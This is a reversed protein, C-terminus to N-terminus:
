GRRVGHEQWGRLPAAGTRRHAPRAVQHPCAATIVIIDCFECDFPCGRSFQVAMTCLPPSRHPGGPCPCMRSPRGTRPRTAPRSPEGSSTPWWGPSSNRPRALVFIRIDPFAEHGTTFLPRRRHGAGLKRCRSVIEKVSQKHVIMASIMVYDAQRVDEDHLREVNLDVLKLRWEAPLMAAVTLLGLPSLGRAQVCLAPVHKFSWLTDPTQPNCLLINKRNARLVPGPGSRAPSANWRGYWYAGSAPLSLLIQCRGIARGAPRAGRRSCYDPQHNRTSPRHLPAAARV